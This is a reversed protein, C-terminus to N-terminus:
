ANRSLSQTGSAAGQMGQLGFCFCGRERLWRERAKSIRLNELHRLLVRIHILVKGGVAGRASRSVVAQVIVQIALGRSMEVVIAGLLDLSQVRLLVM